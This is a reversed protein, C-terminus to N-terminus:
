KIIELYKELDKLIQPFQFDKLVAIRDEACTMNLENVRQELLIISSYDLYIKLDKLTIGIRNFLEFITNLYEIYEEFIKFFIIIDDVYCRVFQRYPRLIIDIIQQVYPPSGKYKIIAINITEM